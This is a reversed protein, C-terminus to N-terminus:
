AIEGTAPRALWVRLADTVAEPATLNVMHRHGDIIVAQGNQAAKAMARAMAPTSNADGDGTLALLPCAIKGFQDAYTADGHAFARYAMAYGDIDVSSLWGAVQARAVQDAHSDSFWRDLPTDLDFAGEGIVAARAIVADRAAQDRCYVGNVLAVRSVRDPSTVAFGAAILAGMSHGALAVPGLELADLVNGLWRVYDPLGSQAPLPASGGHGPLDLAIVRHTKSLAEIQPTWAASQMGVGHILVLPAGAGVDRLAVPGFPDSLPRTILTM